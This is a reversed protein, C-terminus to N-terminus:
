RNWEPKFDDPVEIGDVPGGGKTRRSTELYGCPKCVLNSGVRQGVITVNPGDTLTLSGGCKPCHWPALRSM